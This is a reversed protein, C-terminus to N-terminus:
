GGSKSKTKRRDSVAATRRQARISM